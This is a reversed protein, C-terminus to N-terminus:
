TWSAGWSTQRSYRRAMSFRDLNSEASLQNRGCSGAEFVDQIGVDLSEGQSQAWSGHAAVAAACPAKQGIEASRKRPHATEALEAAIGMQEAPKSGQALWLRRQRVFGAGIKQETEAAQQFIQGGVAM